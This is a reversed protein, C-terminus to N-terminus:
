TGSSKMPIGHQRHVPFYISMVCSAIIHVCASNELKLESCASTSSESSLDDFTTVAFVFSFKWYGEAPSLSKFSVIAVRLAPSRYWWVVKGSQKPLAARVACRPPLESMM